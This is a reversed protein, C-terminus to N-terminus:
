NLRVPKGLVGKMGAPDIGLLDLITPTVDRQQFPPTNAAEGRAPTDPGAIALWIQDAAPVRQGHSSWDDLTAGRGHDVTVLVSTTGRYEPMTDIAEFLEKLCRDFYGITDLVRDYRKDHAWDDTEGLAIYLLRPKVRRLYEMALEFTYYDHRVSDWGTLTLFQAASLEKMRPSAGPDEWARYGANITVSGPQSEGIFHFVSWSGFLAVQRKDLGLKARVFELVTQSPNQIERNGTIATDQARGTLIESYGPYSVRFGNTVKVSSGRQPNGLIVGRKVFETWLFPLLLRRREEPQERWLRDRRAQAEQMGAAKENMLRPDIGTFVEQWRLGDATVLIVNRTKRPQAQLLTALLLALSLLKM